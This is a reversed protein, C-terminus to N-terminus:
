RTRFVTQTESYIRLGPITRIGARLLAKIKEEDAKLLDMPLKSLDEVDFKWVVKEYSMAGETRITKPAEDVYPVVDLEMAKAFIEAEAQAKRQEEEKKRKWADLKAKLIEEVKDLKETFVKASDNVKNIFKRAPDTIEKRLADIKKFLNKAEVAFSLAEEADAQNQIEYTNAYEVMREIKFAHKELQNRVDNQPIDAIHDLASM